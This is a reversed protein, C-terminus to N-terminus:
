PTIPQVVAVTRPAGVTTRRPIRGTILWRRGDLVAAATVDQRPARAARAGTRLDLADPAVPDRRTRRHVLLTDDVRELQARRHAPRGRAPRDGAPRVAREAAPPARRHRAVAGPRRRAPRVGSRCPRHARRPPHGRPRGPDRRRAHPRLQGRPVRRRRRCPPRRDRHPRPRRRPVAGQDAPAQPRHARRLGRAPRRRLRGPVDGADVLGEVDGAPLAVAGVLDGGEDALAASRRLPDSRRPPDSGANRCPDSRAFPCGARSAGRDPRHRRAIQANPSRGVARSSRRRAARGDLRRAARLAQLERPEAGRHGSAPESM